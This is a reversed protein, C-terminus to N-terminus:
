SESPGRCAIGLLYFHYFWRCILLNFVHWVTSDTGLNQKSQIQLKVATSYLFVPFTQKSDAKTSKGAFHMFSITPIKLTQAAFRSNEFNWIESHM